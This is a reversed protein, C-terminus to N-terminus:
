NGKEKPMYSVILRYWVKQIATHKVVWRHVSLFCIWDSKLVERMCLCVCMQCM